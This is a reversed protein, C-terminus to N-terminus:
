FHWCFDEYLVEKLYTGLNLQFNNTLARDDIYINAFIKRNIPQKTKEWEKYSDFKEKVEEVDDHVADFELGMSKCFNVANELEKGLRSTWLIVKVGRERLAILENFLTDDTFWRLPKVIEPYKNVLFIVDFDVAIIKNM